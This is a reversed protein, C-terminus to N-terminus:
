NTSQDNPPHGDWTKSWVCSSWWRVAGHIKLGAPKWCSAQGRTYCALQYEDGSPSSCQLGFGSDKCRKQKGFRFLGRMYTVQLSLSTFFIPRRFALPHSVLSHQRFWLTSVTVLAVAPYNALGNAEGLQCAFVVAWFASQPDRFEVLLLSRLVSLWALLCISILM